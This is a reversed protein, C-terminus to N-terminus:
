PARGHPMGNPLGGASPLRDVAFGVRKPPPGAYSSKKMQASGPTTRNIPISRSKSGLFVSYLIRCKFSIASSGMPIQGQSFSSWVAHEVRHDFRQGGSYMRAKTSDM